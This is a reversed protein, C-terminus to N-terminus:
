ALQKVARLGSEIAGDMYGSWGNAIDSSAFAIKGNPQLIQPYLTTLQKRKRFSWGGRSYPDNGYDHATVSIIDLDVGLQKVAAKVQAVNRVDLNPDASFGVYLQGEATAPGAQMWPISAGGEAGQAFVRGQGSRAHIWLKKASAVGIGQTTAACHAAPLSPSFRITQWVNAPVAVIVAPASYQVGSKTTVYRLAGGDAVSAVPSNLILRANVSDKLMANLLGLTGGKMTWRLTNNWGTETGGALQWRHALTTLGGQTSSGGSLLATEGNVLMEDAPSYALETLRDRLSKADVSQLLDLRYLPDMPREFYQASGEFLRVRLEAAHAFGTAVDHELPGAPTPLILREIAGEEQLQIGYRQLEAGVHPMTAPDVWTGGMEVLQGGVTATWTQGGIRHRAELILVRKGQKSLERAATVGAFGAGIVIVDYAGAAAAPAGSSLSVGLASAGVAAAGAVKLVTRRSTVRATDPATGEHAAAFRERRIKM